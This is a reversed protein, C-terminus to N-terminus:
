RICAQGCDAASCTGAREISVEWKALMAFFGDIASQSLRERTGLHSLDPTTDFQYGPAVNPPNAAIDMLATGAKRSVIDNASNPEM